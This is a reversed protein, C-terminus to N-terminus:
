TSLQRTPHTQTLVDPAGSLRLPQVHGTTIRPQFRDQVGAADTDAARLLRRWAFPSPLRPRFATISKLHEICGSIKCAGMLLDALKQQVVDGLFHRRYNLAPCPRSRRCATPSTVIPVETLRGAIVDNWDLVLGRRAREPGIFKASGATWCDSLDSKEATGGVVLNSGYRGLRPATPQMRAGSLSPRPGLMIRRDGKASAGSPFAQVMVRNKARRTFFVELLSDM